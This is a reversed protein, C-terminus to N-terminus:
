EKADIVMLALLANPLHFLHLKIVGNMHMLMKQKSWLNKVQPDHGKQPEFSDCPDGLIM